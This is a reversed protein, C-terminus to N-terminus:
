ENNQYEFSSKPVNNYLSFLQKLHPLTPARQFGDGARTHPVDEAAKVWVGEWSTLIGMPYVCSAHHFHPHILVLAQEVHM